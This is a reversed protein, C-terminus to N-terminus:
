SSTGKLYSASQADPGMPLLLLPFTEWTEDILLCLLSSPFQPVPDM